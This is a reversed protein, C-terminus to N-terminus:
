WRRSLRNLLQSAFPALLERISLRCQLRARLLPQEKRGIGVFSEARYNLGPGAWTARGPSVKRKCRNATKPGITAGALVGTRFRTCDLRHTRNCAALMPCCMRDDDALTPPGRGPCLRRLCLLWWVLLQRADLYTNAGRSWLKLLLVHDAAVSISIHHVDHEGKAGNSGRNESFRVRGTPRIGAMYQIVGALYARMGM